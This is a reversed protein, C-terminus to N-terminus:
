FDIADLSFSGWIVNKALPIQHSASELIHMFYGATNPIAVIDGPAVGDPFVLRRHIFVENEICYAGVLFAEMGARQRRERSVSEDPCRLLLPDLLLDDAATKCQTRNMEVGVLPLGDSRQKVFAVRALIVGGGDLLSRGPEVHLRLGRSAFEEKVLQPVGTGSSAPVVGNLLQNLWEGRVPTQWFPYTNALPNAKWTFPEREGANQLELQHQFRFWENADDLYSMPIGGGIDIFEPSHGANRAADVLALAEALGARRDAESYGGLHLHVGVVDVDPVRKGIGGEWVALREGFRTPPLVDPDPALRPAVRATTGQAGAIRSVRELEAVTDVSIVVGAGVARTLLEDPKIAASLIIRQPDVGRDLVQTLERLSAVDIGHGNDRAADVFALAKNAKRAFHVRVEVGNRSGAETLERANRPLVEPNLVNVPSGHERILQDADAHTLQQMWPELRATLPVAGRIGRAHAAGQKTRARDSVADAWRPIVDHIDRSLTDHGLLSGEIMRGVKTCTEEEPLPEDGPPPIVADLVLDVQVGDTEQGALWKDIVGARGMFRPDVLGSDLAAVLNRATKPPPGFAVREMRHALTDFGELTKKGGLSVREIIAPYLGRWALGVAWAAAKPSESVPVTGEAVRLSERLAAVPDCDFDAGDLVAEIKELAAAAERPSPGLLHVAADALVARFAPMDAAERIQDLFETPVEPVQPPKVEMFRGGRNTPYITCGKAHWDQILDIFTLAAGRVGVKSGDPVDTVEPNLLATRVPVSAERHELAEEWDTAHGTAILLEDYTHVDGESSFVRWGDGARSIDEARRQIHNLETGEPVRGLLERWSRRLFEGLLVRPPFAEDSLDYRGAATYVKDSPVNLLWSEPMGAQYVQGSGVEFPEWVDILFQAGDRHARNILEEAAWEGRPGGGIIGVRYPNYGAM